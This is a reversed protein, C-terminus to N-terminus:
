IAVAEEELRFNKTLGTSLIVSSRSDSIYRVPDGVSSKKVGIYCDAPTGGSFTGSAIGSSNTLIGDIVTVDDLRDFETGETTKVTVRANEIPTGNKDKVIVVVTVSGVFMTDSNTGTNSDTSPNAGNVKNVVLVETATGTGAGIGTAIFKTGINNNDAGILTFDTTGVILIKYGRGIIFSGSTITAANDSNLIDYDNDSFTDGDSTYSDVIGYEIASPNNTVDTNNSYINNKFNTTTTPALVSAITGTYGKITNGQFTSLGPVIQLCDSFVNGTVIAGSHFESAEALKSLQLGVMSFSNVVISADFLFRQSGAAGWAGDTIDINTLLSADDFFIIKYLTSSVSLDKFQLKQGTPAFYTTNTGDGVTVEGSLFLVEDIEETVGYGEIKDKAAIHSWDIEDGSTGGTVTYGDGYYWADIWTNAPVNRPKTLAKCRYGIGTIASKDAPTGSDETPTNGTYVVFKKWGGSYTDSGAVTWYSTNTGDSIFIQLGNNAKTQLNGSWTLKIPLRLHQDNQGAGSFDWTGSAYIEQSAGANPTMVCAASNGGQIKDEPELSFTDGVLGTTTEMLHIVTPVNTLVATAM